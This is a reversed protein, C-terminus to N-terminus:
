AHGKYLSTTSPIVIPWHPSANGVHPGSQSMRTHKFWDHNLSTVDRSGFSDIVAHTLFHEELQCFIIEEIVHTKAIALDQTRPPMTNNCRDRTKTIVKDNLANTVRKDAAVM